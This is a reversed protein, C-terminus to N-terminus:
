QNCTVIQYNRTYVQQKYYKTSGSCYWDETPDLNVWREDSICPEYYRIREDQGYVTLAVDGRYNCNKSYQTIFNNAKYTAPVVDTWIIADTTQQKKLRTYEDYGDCYIGDDSVWRYFVDTDNCQIRDAYEPWASKYTNVAECPVIFICFNNMQGFANGQLTPPTTSTFVM